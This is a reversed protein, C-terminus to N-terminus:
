NISADLKTNNGKNKTFYQIVFLIGFIILGIIDSLSEPYVM